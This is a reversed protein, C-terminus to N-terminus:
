RWVLESEMDKPYKITGTLAQSMDSLVIRQGAFNRMYVNELLDALAADRYVHHAEDVVVLDYPCIKHRQFVIRNNAKDERVEYPILPLGRSGQENAKRDGTDDSSPATLIHLYKRVQRKMRPGGKEIRKFIWRVVFFALPRNRAVFLVYRGGDSAGAGAGCSKRLKDLIYHLAIFTKGAGAPARVHVHRGRREEIDRLKQEQHLTLTDLSLMSSEYKLAFDSRGMKRVRMLACGDEECSPAGAEDRGVPVAAEEPEVAVPLNRGWKSLDLLELWPAVEFGGNTYWEAFEEFSILDGETPVVQSFVTWM